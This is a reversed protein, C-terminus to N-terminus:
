GTGRLLSYFPVSKKKKTTAGKKEARGGGGTGHLLQPSFSKLM